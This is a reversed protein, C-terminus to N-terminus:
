AQISIGLITIQLALDLKQQCIIMGVLCRHSLCVPWPRIPPTVTYSKLFEENSQAPPIPRHYHHHSPNLLPEAVSAFGRSHRCQMFSFARFIYIM